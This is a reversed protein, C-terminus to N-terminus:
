QSKRYGCPFFHASIPDYVVSHLTSLFLRKTKVQFRNKSLLLFVDYDDMKVLDPYQDIPFDRTGAGPLDYIQINPNDEFVYKEVNKTGEIVDVKAYLSGKEGKGFPTLGRFKNIWTSKGVGSQGIVAIKVTQTEWANLEKEIEHKVLEIQEKGAESFAKTLGEDGKFDPQSSSAM